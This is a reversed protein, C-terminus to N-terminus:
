EELTTGPTKCSSDLDKLLKICGGLAVCVDQLIISPHNIWGMLYLVMIWWTWKMVKDQMKMLSKRRLRSAITAAEELSLKEQEETTLTPTPPDMQKKARRKWLKQLSSSGLTSSHERKPLPSERPSNLQRPSASQSRLSRTQQAEELFDRIEQNMRVEEQHDEALQRRRHLSVRLKKWLGWLLPLTLLSIELLAQIPLLIGVPPLLM